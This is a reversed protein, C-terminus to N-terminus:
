ITIYDLADMRALAPSQRVSRSTVIVIGVAALSAIAEDIRERVPAKLGRHLQDRSRGRRAGAVQLIVLREARALTEGSNPTSSEQM